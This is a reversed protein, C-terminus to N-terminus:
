ANDYEEETIRTKTKTTFDYSYQSVKGDKSTAYLMSKSTLNRIQLLNNIKLIKKKNAGTKADCRWLVANQKELHELYYLKGSVIAIPEGATFKKM